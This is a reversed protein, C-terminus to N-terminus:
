DRLTPRQSLKRQIWHSWSGGAAMGERGLMVDEGGPCVADKQFQLGFYARKGELQKQTTDKDCCSSLVLVSQSLLCSLLTGPNLDGAREYFGSSAWHKHSPPLLWSFWPTWQGTLRASDALELNLLHGQGLFHSSSYDLFISSTLRQGACVCAHACRCVCTCVYLCIYIYIWVCLPFLIKVWTNFTKLYSGM